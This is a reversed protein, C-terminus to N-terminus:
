RSELKIDRHIISQDHLYRTAAVIEAFIRQIISPTLLDRKQSALEFLDGGACLSMVFISREEEVKFAKLHVVSPHHVSKLIDLERRLGNRIKLEDAGGAAGHQAVKIAVARKIDFRVDTEVDGILGVTEHDNFVSEAWAEQSTALYVKSFTGEGLLRVARWRRRKNDKVGRADYYRRRKAIPEGSEERTSGLSSDRGQASPPPTPEQTMPSILGRKEALHEERRLHPPNQDAPSSTGSATVKRPRNIIQLPDPVYESISRNKAHSSVNHRAMEQNHNGEKAISLLSTYTKRQQSNALASSISEGNATVFASDPAM